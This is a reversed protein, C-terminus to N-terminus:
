GRFLTISTGHVTPISLYLHLPCISLRYIHYFYERLRLDAQSREPQFSSVLCLVCPAIHLIVIYIYIHSYGIM